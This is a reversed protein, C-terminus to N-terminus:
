LLNNATPAPAATAKTQAVAAVVLIFYLCVYLHVYLKHTQIYKCCNCCRRGNSTAVACCLVTAVLLRTSPMCNNLMTPLSARASVSLFLVCCCFTVVLAFCHVSCFLPFLQRLLSCYIDGLPERGEREREKWARESQRDSVNLLKACLAAIATVKMLIHSGCYVCVYKCLLLLLLM